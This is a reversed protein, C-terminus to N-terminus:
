IIRYEIIIRIPHDSPILEEPAVMVMLVGQKEIDGRMDGLHLRGEVM